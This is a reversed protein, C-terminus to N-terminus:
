FMNPGFPGDESLVYDMIVLFLYQSIPPKYLFSIENTCNIPEYQLTVPSLASTSKDKLNQAL